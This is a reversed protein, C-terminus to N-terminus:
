TRAEILQQIRSAADPAVDHFSLAFGMGREVYVVKGRVTLVDQPGIQMTVVTSEGSTPTALSQVFCGGVSIDAVRCASAGSAGHWTADIPVALRFHQRREGM